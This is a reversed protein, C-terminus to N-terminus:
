SFFSLVFKVPIICPTKTLCPLARQTCVRPFVHSRIHTTFLFGFAISANGSLRIICILVFCSGIVLSARRWLMMHCCQAYPAANSFIDFSVLAILSINKFKWKRCSFCLNIVHFKTYMYFVCWLDWKKLKRKKMFILTLLMEAHSAPFKSKRSKGSLTTAPWLHREM